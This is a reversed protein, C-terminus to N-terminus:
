VITKVPASRQTPSLIKSWQEEEILLEFGDYDPLNIDVLLLDIEDSGLIAMAENGSGAQAVVDYDDLSEFYALLGRRFLPHDDVIMVKIPETHSM